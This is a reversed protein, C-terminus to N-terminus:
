QCGDFCKEQLLMMILDIVHGNRIITENRGVLVAYPVGKFSYM